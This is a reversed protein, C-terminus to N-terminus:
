IILHVPHLLMNFLVCTMVTLDMKAARTDSRGTEMRDAAGNERGRDVVTSPFVNPRETHLVDSRRDPRDLPDFAKQPKLVDYMM